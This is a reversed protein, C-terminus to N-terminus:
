DPIPSTKLSIKKVGARAAAYVVERVSEFSVFAMPMIEVEIERKSRKMEALRLSAFVSGLLGYDPGGGDKGGLPPCDIGKIIVSSRGKERDITPVGEFVLLIHVLIRNGTSSLKGEYPETKELNGGSAAKVAADRVAPFKEAIVNAAKEMEEILEGTVVTADRPEKRGKAFNDKLFKDLVEQEIAQTDLPEPRPWFYLLLGVAIVGIIISAVLEKTTMATL